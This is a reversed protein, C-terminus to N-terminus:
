VSIHWYFTCPKKKDSWSVQFLCQRGCIGESPLRKFIRSNKSVKLKEQYLCMQFKNLSLLCLWRKQRELISRPKVYHIKRTPLHFYEIRPILSLVCEPNKFTRQQHLCKTASSVAQNKLFFTVCVQEKCPPIQWEICRSCCCSLRTEDNVIFGTVWNQLDSCQFFCDSSGLPLIVEKLKMSFMNLKMINTCLLM